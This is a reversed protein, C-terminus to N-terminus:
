IDELLIFLGSNDSESFNMSGPPSGTPTTTWTCTATNSGTNLGGAGTAVGAPVSVTVVGDTTMGTVTVTYISPGGSVTGVLTGGVTSGTFSVDGTAFGTVDQSFMVTFLVPSTATPDAQGVAKSVIAGPAPLTGAVVSTVPGILGWSTGGLARYNRGTNLAKVVEGPYQPTLALVATLDAATRNQPSYTVDTPNNGSLDRAFTM